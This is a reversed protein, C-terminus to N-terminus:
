PVLNPLARERVFILSLAAGASILAAAAVFPAIHGVHSYLTSGVLAGCLVGVGQATSVTGFITGRQKEGALSTLLALWAPFALVFGVGMVSASVIFGLEEIAHSRGLHHLFPIGWMGVAALVFGLRVARTKGWRDALHGAPLAILGIILAPGLFLAGFQQETLGFEDIAFIKVLLAICGIGFFTVFALLLFQPVTRVAALFRAWTMSEHDGEAHRRVPAGGKGRLAVVIVIAAIAFLTSTLYFSPWYHPSQYVPNIPTIPPVLAPSVAPMHHQLHQLHRLRAELGRGAHRM